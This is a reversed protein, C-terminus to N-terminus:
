FNYLLVCLYGDPAGAAYRFMLFACSFDILFHTISYVAVMM